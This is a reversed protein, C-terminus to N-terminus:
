TADEGNFYKLYSRLPMEVKPRTKEMAHQTCVLDDEGQHSKCVSPRLRGKLHELAVLKIQSDTICLGTCNEAPTSIDNITNIM